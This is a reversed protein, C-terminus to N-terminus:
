SPFSIGNQEGIQKILIIEPGTLEEDGKKEIRHIVPQTVALRDAFKAQSENLHERIQKVQNGTLKTDKGSM